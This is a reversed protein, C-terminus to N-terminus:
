YDANRDGREACYPDRVGAKPIGCSIMYGVTLVTIYLWV